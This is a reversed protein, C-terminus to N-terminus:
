KKKKPPKAKWKEPSFLQSIWEADDEVEPPNHEFWVTTKTETIQKAKGISRNLMTEIIDLSKWKILQEAIIRVIIPNDRENYLERLKAEPLQLMSLYNTEIEIRTMPTYWSEQLRENIVSVGKRPRWNPNWSQWKKWGVKMEVAIKGINPNGIWKKWM